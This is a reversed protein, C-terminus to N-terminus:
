VSLMKEQYFLRALKLCQRKQKNCLSTYPGTLELRQMRAFIAKHKEQV